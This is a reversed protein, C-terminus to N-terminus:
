EDNPWVEFVAAFVDPCCPWFEGGEYHVIWDGVEARKIGVETSLCPAHDSSWCLYRGPIWHNLEWDNEGDWRVAEVAVPKQRYRAVSM